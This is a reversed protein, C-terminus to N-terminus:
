EGDAPDMATRMQEGFKAATFNLNAMVQDETLELDEALRAYRQYELSHCGLCNNVYLAAGRQLAAKSGIDVQAHELAAGSAAAALGPVLGPVLALLLALVAPATAGATRALPTRALLALFQLALRQSMSRKTMRPCGSLFRRPRTSARGSP